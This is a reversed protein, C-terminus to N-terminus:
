WSWWLISTYLIRFYLFIVVHLVRSKVDRFQYHRYSLHHRGKSASLVSSSSSSSSVDTTTTSADRDQHPSLLLGITLLWGDGDYAGFSSTCHHLVVLVTLFVKLNDLFYLRKQSSQQQQQQQQDHKRRKLHHQIRRRLLWFTFKQKRRRRKHASSSVQEVSRQM